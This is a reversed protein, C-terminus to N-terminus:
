LQVSLSAVISHTEYGSTFTSGSIGAITAGSGSFTFTPNTTGLYRYDLDIAITPTINYRGGAIGQYGFQWDTADDCRGIPVTWQDNQAVAGIGAGIHPTLLLGDFQFDYIVNTILAYATRTGSAPVTAPPVGDTISIIRNHQYRFEEELRLGAWRYGGRVGVNYGDKFYESLIGVRPLSAPGSQPSEIKTWGGEVGAYWGNNSLIGKIGSEGAQVDMYNLTLIMAVSFAYYNKM